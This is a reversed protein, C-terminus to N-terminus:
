YSLNWILLLKGLLRVKLVVRQKSVESHFVDTTCPLVPNVLPPVLGIQLNTLLCISVLFINGNFADQVYVWYVSASLASHMM